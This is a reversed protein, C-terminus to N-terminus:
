FYRVTASNKSSSCITHCFIARAGRRRGTNVHSYLVTRATVHMFVLTDHQPFFLTASSPVSFLDHLVRKNANFRKRRPRCRGRAVANRQMGSRDRAGASVNLICRVPGVIVASVISRGYHVIYVTPGHPGTGGHAADGAGGGM